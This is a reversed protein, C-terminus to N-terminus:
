LSRFREKEEFHELLAGRVREAEIELDESAKELANKMVETKHAGEYRPVINM